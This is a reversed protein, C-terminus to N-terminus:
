SSASLISPFHAEVKLFGSDRWHFIVSVSKQSLSFGSLFCSLLITHCANRLLGLATSHSLHKNEPRKQEWYGATKMNLGAAKNCVNGEYGGIFLLLLSDENLFYFLYTPVLRRNTNIYPSSSPFFFPCLFPFLFHPQNHSWARLLVRASMYWDSRDLVSFYSSQFPHDWLCCLTWLYLFFLNRIPFKKHTSKVRM